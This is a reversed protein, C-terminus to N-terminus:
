KINNTPKPIVQLLEITFDLAANPPIEGPIGQNGYGLEAPIIIRYKGGPRMMKLGETFGPVLNDVDFVVPDETRDFESGDSLKAVYNLRADDGSAPNVGEGETIVQFVLGSPTTVVGEISAISDLYAKQNEVSFVSDIYAKQLNKVHHDIIEYAEEYSYAPATGNVIRELMKMFMPSKLKIGLQEINEISGKLATGLITAAAITVSDASEESKFDTARSPGVALLLGAIFTIVTKKLQHM